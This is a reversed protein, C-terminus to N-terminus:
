EKYILYGGDVPIETGTMYKAKDSALFVAVNAIDQPSAMHGLPILGELRKRRVPDKFFKESGETFTRGPKISNVNIRYPALEVAMSKTLATVAGKASIYASLNSTALDSRMCSINIISGQKNNKVMWKAVIQGWLFVGKLNVDITREWEKEDMELFPVKQMVAATSVLVDVQKFESICKEFGAKVDKSNSVDGCYYSADYVKFEKNIVTNLKDLDKDFLFIEYNLKAFELAIAKGIGSAGGTIIAVYKKM